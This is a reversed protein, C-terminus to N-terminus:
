KKWVGRGLGRYIFGEAEVKEPDLIGEFDVIAAPMKALLKLKRLNLRKFQDHGTFIVICDAGEVAETLSKTLFTIEADASTKRLLYPDYPSLRAGKSELMKVFKRFSSKPIDAMNQTQSVGLLAIKARRLTKGCGKLAEHVLNIGHKLAEGNSKLAAWSVRLKVGRNEAEELIMFPAEHSNWCNLTPQVLINTNSTLLNRVALYDIGTKECFFAFENALAFSANRYIAEFLVAAEAVKINLTKILPERTIASIVNSAKELSNVDQAAVLRKCCALSELTQEKSFPVPSYAFYFDVGVKLGSVSELVEKLINETVGVGVISAIIIIKDRHLSLGIRKLTKEINSYDVVGNENVVTPTTVIIINSQAAAEELNNATTLRGNRLNKRLIPEVEHKLFPIKGKSVREVLARDNDTCIVKFGAEAFLCAHLIGNRDCGVIGVTSKESQESNENQLTEQSTKPLM